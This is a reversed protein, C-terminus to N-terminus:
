AIDRIEHEVVEGGALELIGFTHDPQSRRETPSGPNFLLQGDLGTEAMPVHSHGFVVVPCEPFYRRLRNERAKLPGSDHIMGIKVGGLEVIRREPLRDALDIDNNGLVAYTPAYSELEALVDATVLDGAHLIADASKMAEIVEEPLRRSSGRRIHTDSVVVATVSKM